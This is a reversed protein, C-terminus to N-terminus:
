EFRMPYYLYECYNSNRDCVDMFVYLQQPVQAFLGAIDVWDGSNDCALYFESTYECVLNGGQDCWHREGCIETHVPISTAISPRDNVRLTVSYDELSDVQWFIEFLGNFLYPNLALDDYGPVATDQNYSDIMHFSRLYPVYDEPHVSSKEDHCAALGWLMFGSILVRLLKGM